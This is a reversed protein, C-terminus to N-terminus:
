GQKNQASVAGDLNAFGDKCINVRKERRGVVVPVAFATM